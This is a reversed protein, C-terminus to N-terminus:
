LFLSPLHFGIGHNEVADVGAETESAWSTPGVAARDAVLLGAGRNNRWWGPPQHNLWNTIM